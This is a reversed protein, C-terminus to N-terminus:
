AGDDHSLGGPCTTRFTRMVVKGSSSAAKINPLVPRSTCWSVFTATLSRTGHTVLRLRSVRRQRAAPARRPFDYDYRRGQSRDQHARHHGSDHGCTSTGPCLSWRGGHGVRGGRLCLPLQKRIDRHHREIPRGVLVRQGSHRNVGGTGAEFVYLHHSRCETGLQSPAQVRGALFPQRCTGQM